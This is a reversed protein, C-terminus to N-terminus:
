NAAPAYITTYTVSTASHTGSCSICDPQDSSTIREAGAAGDVRIEAVGVYTDYNSILQRIRTTSSM